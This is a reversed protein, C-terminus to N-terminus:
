RLGGSHQRQRRRRDPDRRHATSSTTITARVSGFFDEVESWPEYGDDSQQIELKLSDTLVPQKRASITSLPQRRERRASRRPDDRGARGRRYQHPDGPARPAREYQSTSRARIWYRQPMTLDSELRQDQRHHGQAATKLLCARLAHLGADRGEAADLARWRVTGPNGRARRRGSVRRAGDACPLSKAALTDRYSSSPSISHGPRFRHPRPIWSDWRWSRATVRLIASLVSDRTRRSIPM